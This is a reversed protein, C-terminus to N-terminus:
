LQCYDVESRQDEELWSCCAAFVTLLWVQEPKLAITTLVHENGFATRPVRLASGPMASDHM